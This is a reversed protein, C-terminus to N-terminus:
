ELGDLIGLSFVVLEKVVSVAKRWESRLVLGVPVPHLPANGLDPNM